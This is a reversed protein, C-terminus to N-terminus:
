PMQSLWKGLVGPIPFHSAMFHGLVNIVTLFWDDLIIKAKLLLTLHLHFRCSFVRCVSPSGFPTHTHTRAGASCVSHRKVFNENNNNNATQRLAICVGTTQAIFFWNLISRARYFSGKNFFLRLKIVYHSMILLYARSSRARSFMFM